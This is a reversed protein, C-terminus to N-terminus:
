GKKAAIAAVAITAAQSILGTQAASLPPAAGAALAQAELPVGIQLLAIVAPSLGPILGAAAVGIPMLLPAIQAAIAAATVKDEDTIIAQDLGQAAALAANADAHWQDVTPM